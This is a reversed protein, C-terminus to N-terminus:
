SDLDLDGDAANGMSWGAFGDASHAVTTGASSREVERRAALAERLWSSLQRYCPHLCLRASLLWAYGGPHLVSPPVASPVTVAAAATVPERKSAHM